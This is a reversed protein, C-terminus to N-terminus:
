ERKFLRMGDEEIVEEDLKKIKVITDGDTAEDPFIPTPLQIENRFAELGGGGFVEFESSQILTVISVSFTARSVLGLPPPLSRAPWCAMAVVRVMAM